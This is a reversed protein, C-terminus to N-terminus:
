TGNHGFDLGSSFRDQDQEEDIVTADDDDVVNEESKILNRTRVVPVSGSGSGRSVDLLVKAAKAATM